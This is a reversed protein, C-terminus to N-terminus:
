EDVEPTDVRDEASPPPTEDGADPGADAQGEAAAAIQNPTEGDTVVGYGKAKAETNKGGRRPRSVVPEYEEGTHVREIVPQAEDQDEDDGDPAGPTPTPPILEFGEPLPTDTPPLLPNDAATLVGRGPELALLNLKGESRDVSVSEVDQCYVIRDAVRVEVRILKEPM